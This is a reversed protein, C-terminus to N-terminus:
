YVRKFLRNMGRLLMIDGRFLRNMGRFLRNIDEKNRKLNGAVKVPLMAAENSIYTIHIRRGRRRGVLYGAVKVPLMAAEAGM